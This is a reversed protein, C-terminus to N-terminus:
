RKEMTKGFKETCSKNLVYRILNNTVLLKKFRDGNLVPSSNFREIILDVDPNWRSEWDRIVGVRLGHPNVKHHM